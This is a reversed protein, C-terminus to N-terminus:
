LGPEQDDLDIKNSRIIGNKEILESPLVMIERRETQGGSLLQHDQTLNHIIYALDRGSSKALADDTLHDLARQRVTKLGSLFPDLAQKVAKTEYVVRPSKSVHKSYGNKLLIEGKNVKKGRKVATITDKIVGAQNFSPIYIKEKKM